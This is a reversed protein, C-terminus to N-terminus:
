TGTPDIRVPNSASAGELLGGANIVAIETASTPATAGTLGVSPNSATITGSIPIPNGPGFPTFVGAVVDGIQTSSTPGTGGNLGVSANSSSGGGAGGTGQGIILATM